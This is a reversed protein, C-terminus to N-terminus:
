RGGTDFEDAKSIRDMLTEQVGLSMMARRGDKSPLGREFRINSGIQLRALAFPNEGAFRQPSDGCEHM